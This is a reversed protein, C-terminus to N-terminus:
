KLLHSIKSISVQHSGYYANIADRDSKSLSPEAAKKNLVATIEAKSLVKEVAAIESKAIVEVNTIAKAAPATKKVMKTLIETVADLSKQLDAIKSEKGMIESKLLEVEALGESKGFPLEDTPAPAAEAAAPAAPAPAEAAPAEAGPVAPAGPAPAEAASMADLAEKVADHHAMLEERSMSGYMEQMHALDEADYVGGAAPAAEAPAPAAEAAPAEAEAAPAGEAAPAESEAAPAESAEAEPKKDDKKDENKKEKPEPKEDEAKALTVGDVSPAASGAESKALTAGFYSTFEKEMETILQSFESDSYQYQM